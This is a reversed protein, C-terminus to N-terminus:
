EMKMFPAAVISQSSAYLILDECVQNKKNVDKIANITEIIRVCLGKQYLYGEFEKNKIKEQLYSSFKSANFAKGYKQVGAEVYSSLESRQAENKVKRPFDTPLQPIGHLKLILNISGQGIKGQNASSGKVEGQWGTLSKPGDFGRFQIKTDGKFIMYCDASNSSMEFKEFVKTSASKRDVNIAKLSANGTIKKLSVGFMVKKQLREMMCQNLGKLTVEEELCKAEYERTTVYIDAPSWKNIDIRVGEKKKVRKFQNEIHDVTKSGRHFKVGKSKLDRYTNWLKNAGKTCSAVWEDSMKFINPIDEDVDFYDKAAEVSKPTIDGSTIERGLHFAVAAYVAQGSETQKTIAAGAGSGARKGKFKFRITSTGTEKIVIGEFTSGPVKTIEYPIKAGKLKEAMESRATVRDDVKVLIEALRDSAKTVTASDLDRTVENVALLVDSLTAM